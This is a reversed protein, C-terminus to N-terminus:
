VSASEGTEEVLLVTHGSKGGLNIPSSKPEYYKLYNPSGNTMWVFRSSKMTITPRGNFRFEYRVVGDLECGYRQVAQAPSLVVATCYRVESSAVSISGNPNTSSRTRTITEIRIREM